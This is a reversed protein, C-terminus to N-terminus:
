VGEPRAQLSDRWDDTGREIRVADLPVVRAGVNMWAGLWIPTSMKPQHSFGYWGGDENRAVWKIWPALAAWPIVDQTLPAPRIRYRINGTWSPNSASLWEGTVLYDVCGRDRLWARIMAVQAAEPLEGFPVRDPNSLDLDTM